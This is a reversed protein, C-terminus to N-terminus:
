DLTRSWIRGGIFSSGGLRPEREDCCVYWSRRPNGGGVSTIPHTWLKIRQL